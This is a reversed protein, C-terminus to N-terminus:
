YKHVSHGRDMLRGKIVSPPHVTTQCSLIESYWGYGAENAARIRFSYMTQEQLKSVKHSVAKSGKFVTEFSIFMTM